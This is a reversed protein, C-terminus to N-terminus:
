VKDLSAYVQKFRERVRNSDGRWVAYHKMPFVTGLLPLKFPEYYQIDLPVMDFLRKFSNVSYAGMLVLLRADENGRSKMWLDILDRSHEACNELMEGSPAANKVTRCRVANSFAFDGTNLWGQNGIMWGLRRAGNSFAFDWDYWNKMAIADDRVAPMQVRANWWNRQADDSGVEGPNQGLILVRGTISGSYSIPPSQHNSGVCLRCNSCSRIYETVDTM